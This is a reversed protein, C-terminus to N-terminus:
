TVPEPAPAPPCSGPAQPLGPHLDCSSGRSKSRSSGPETPGPGAPTDDYIATIIRDKQDKEDMLSSHMKELKRFAAYHLGTGALMIPPPIGTGEPRTQAAAAEVRTGSAEWWSVPGLM